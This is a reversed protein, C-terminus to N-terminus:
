NLTINIIGLSYIGLIILYVSFIVPLVKFIIASRINEVKVMFGFILLYLGIVINIIGIVM